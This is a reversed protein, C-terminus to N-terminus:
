EVRLVQMSWVGSQRMDFTRQQRVAEIVAAPAFQPLGPRGAVPRHTKLCLGQEGYGAAQPQGAPGGCAM